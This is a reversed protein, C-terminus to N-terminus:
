KALRRRLTIVDEYDYFVSLDKNKLFFARVDEAREFKEKIRRSVPTVVLEDPLPRELKFFMFEPLSDSEEKANRLHLITVGDLEAVHAVFQTSFINGMVNYEPSKKGRSSTAKTASAKAASAKAADIKGTQKKASANKKKAGDEKSRTHVAYETDSHRSITVIDGETKSEASYSNWEGLLTQDIAVSPADLPATSSYACSAFSLASAACCLALFSIRLNM